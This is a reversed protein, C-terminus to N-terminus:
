SRGVYITVLAGEPASRGPQQDIVAGVEGADRDGGQAGPRPVGSGAPADACGARARRGREARLRAAGSGARRLRECRSRRRARLTTGASRAQAVVSGEPVDQSPVYQLSPKLGADHLAKAAEAQTLGVLDPVTAPGAPQAPTTQGTTTGQTTTGQSTTTQDEGRAVNLRITTGPKAVTGAVPNQAIVTGSPEQSPVTVINAQFGADRVVGTAESVQRGVLDPVPVPKPGKSVQLAVTAGEKLKTGPRRCRSSWSGRRSRPSSGAGRQVRLRGARPRRGGPRGARRRPGPRDRSAPRALRGARRGDRRGCARRSRAGARGRRWCAQQRCAPVDRGAPPRCRPAGRSGAARPSRRPPSGRRAGSADDHRDHGRRRGALLLAGGRGRRTCPRAAGPAMALVDTAAQAAATAAGRAGRLRGRDGARADLRFRDADRRGSRSPSGCPITMGPFARNWAVNRRTCARVFSMSTASAVNRSATAPAAACGSCPRSRSSNGPSPTPAPSMCARMAPPRGALRCFTRRTPRAVTVFGDPAPMPPRM